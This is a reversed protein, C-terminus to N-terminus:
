AVAPPRTRTPPDSRPPPRRRPPPHQILELIRDLRRQRPHRRRLHRPRIPDPHGVPVHHSGVAHEEVHGGVPLARDAGGLDVDGRQDSTRRDPRADHDGRARTRWYVHTRPGLRYVRLESIWPPVIDRVDSGRSSASTRTAPSNAPQAAAPVGARTSLVDASIAGSSARKLSSSAVSASRRRGVSTCTRACRSAGARSSGASGGSGRRLWPDPKMMSGFPTITVLAWTTSPDEVTWIRKKSPRRKGALTMPRSLRTSRARSM